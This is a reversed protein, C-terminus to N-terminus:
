ESGNNLIINVVGVADTITINGDGSVDAAEKVFSGSANGLIYNVIAVADTITVKGDGNADGKQLTTFYGPKEKGGDPRAYTADMMSSNYVTGNGGVLKNCSSFMSYSTATTGSWDTNCYITTLESCGAFMSVMNTVNSIDFTTLDLMQLASCYSFMDSTNTVQKTNFASLDISTLSMCGFFMQTMDSVQVTNLNELGEIATMKSLMQSKTKYGGYFMNRTSTLPAEKMSPDIVAKVVKDHYGTFRIDYPNGVPDYM